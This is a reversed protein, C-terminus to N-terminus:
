EKSSEGWYKTKIKNSDAGACLMQLDQDWKERAQHRGVLNYLSYLTCKDTNVGFVEAIELVDLFTSGNESKKQAQRRKAEEVKERLLRMKKQAPSENEPPKEKVKRRNQIRLIDQFESFNETTILRKKKPDGGVLVSNIKPLLIIEEKIFTSFAAQLELLFKDSAEANRLLFTLPEIKEIEIDKIGKKELTDAIEYNDLLLLGLMQYYENVGIKVIEPITLPYIKCVKQFKSPIAKFAQNQIDEIQNASLM